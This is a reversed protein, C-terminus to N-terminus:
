FGRHFTRDKLDPLSVSCQSAQHSCNLLFGQLAESVRAAVNLVAKGPFVTDGGGIGSRDILFSM